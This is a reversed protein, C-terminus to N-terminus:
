QTQRCARTQATLTCGPPGRSTPPWRRSSTRCPWWLRGPRAFIYSFLFLKSAKIIEVLFELIDTAIFRFITGHPSILRSVRKYAKIYFFRRRHSFKALRLVYFFHSHINSFHISLVHPKTPHSVPFWVVIQFFFLIDDKFITVLRVPRQSMRVLPWSVLLHGMGNLHAHRGPRKASRTPWRVSGTDVGCIYIYSRNNYANLLM